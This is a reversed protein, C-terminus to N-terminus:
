RPMKKPHPQPSHSGPGRYSKECLQMAQKTASAEFALTARGDVELTFVRSLVTKM